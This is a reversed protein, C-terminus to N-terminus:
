ARYLKQTIGTCLMATHLVYVHLQSICATHTFECHVKVQETDCVYHIHPYHALLSKLGHIYKNLYEHMTKFVVYMVEM